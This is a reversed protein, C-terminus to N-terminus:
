DPAKHRSAHRLNAYWGLHSSGCIHLNESAPGHRDAGRVRCSTAPTRFGGFSSIAPFSVYPPAAPEIAIQSRRTPRGFHASPTSCCPRHSRYALARHKPSGPTCCDSFISQRIATSTGGELVPSTDVLVSSRCAECLSAFTCSTASHARRNAAATSELSPRGASGAAM